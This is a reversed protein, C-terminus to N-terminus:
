GLRPQCSGPNAFVETQPVASAATVTDTVAQAESPPNADTQEIVGEKRRKRQATARDRRRNREESSLEAKVVGRAAYYARTFRSQAHEIRSPDGGALAETM